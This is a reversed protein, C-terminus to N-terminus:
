GTEETPGVKREMEKHGGMVGSKKQGTPVRNETPNEKSGNIKPEGV